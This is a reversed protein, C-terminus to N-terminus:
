PKRRRKGDPGIFLAGSPLADYEADATVKPLDFAAKIPDLKMAGPRSQYERLVEASAGAKLNGTVSNYRNVIRPWANKFDQSTFNGGRMEELERRESEPLTVALGSYLNLLDNSVAQAASRVRKAEEGRLANPIMGAGEVVGFGPIDKDEYQRLLENATTLSASLAPIKNQQLENAFGTVGRDTRERGAQDLRLQQLTQAQKTNELGFQRLAANVGESQRRLDLSQRKYEEEFAQRAKADATRQLFAERQQDLQQQRLTMGEAHRLASEKAADAREKHRMYLEIVQMPNGSKAAIGLAAETTLNPGQAALEQQAALTAARSEREQKIKEMTQALTMVGAVQQLQGAQERQSQEKAAIYGGLGPINLLPNAMTRCGM